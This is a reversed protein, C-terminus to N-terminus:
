KNKLLNIIEEKSEIIADKSRIVEDKSVIQNDKEKLRERLHKNEAELEKVKSYSENVTNGNNINKNKRNDGIQLFGIDGSINKTEGISPNVFMEGIGFLLWDISVGLKEGLPILVKSSPQNEGSIIKNITTRSVNIERSFSAPNKKLIFLIKNFRENM